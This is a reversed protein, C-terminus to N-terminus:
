GPDQNRGGLGGELDLNGKDRTDKFKDRWNKEPTSNTLWMDIRVQRARGRKQFIAEVLKIWLTMNGIGKKQRQEVPLKFYTLEETSLNARGRRYLDEIRNQLNQKRQAYKSKEKDKHLIDNRAKWVQFTYSHLSTIFKQTWQQLKYKNLDNMTGWQSQVTKWHISIYGKALSHEGLNQQQKIAKYLEKDIGTQDCLDTIWEEAYGETLIKQVSSIIGPYTYLARLQKSLLDLLKNRTM